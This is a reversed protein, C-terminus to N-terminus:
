AVGTIVQFSRMNKYRYHIKSDFVFVLYRVAHQEVKFHLIIM